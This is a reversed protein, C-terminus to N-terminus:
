PSGVILGCDAPPPAFRSWAPSYYVPTDLDGIYEAATHLFSLSAYGRAVLLPMGFQAAVPLVVGALADKESWIEVYADADACLSKRYLRATERLAEEVGDFTRPKSQWRTNDALWDSSRWPSPRDSGVPPASV